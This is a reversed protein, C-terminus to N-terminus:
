RTLFCAVSHRALDIVCKLRAVNILLSVYSTDMRRDEVAAHSSFVDAEVLFLLCLVFSVLMLGLSGQGDRVGLLSINKLKRTTEVGNQELSSRAKPM